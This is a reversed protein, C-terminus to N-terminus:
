SRGGGARKQGPSQVCTHNKILLDRHELFTGKYGTHGLRPHEPNYLLHPSIVLDQLPYILPSYICADMQGGDGPRSQLSAHRKPPPFSWAPVQLVSPHGRASADGRMTLRQVGPCPGCPRGASASAPFKQRIIM